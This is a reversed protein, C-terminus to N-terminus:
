GAGAGHSTEGPRPRPLPISSGLAFVLLGGALLFPAAHHRDYLAGAALPGLVRAASASAQFSGMVAGRNAPTAEFSVMGLMSPQSVARGVASVILPVLLIGVSGPWPIAFFALIMLSVGFLLLTKEGYRAVLRRIAGGQISAMVVAMLVLIGAFGRAEVGFNDKMYYAFITELQAVAFTFLFYTLCLNRVVRNALARLQVTGEAAKAHRTEPEKLVAVAYFFNVAAMGAAVLMPVGYGYPSLLGGIAPGLIFGVGFCAGVMGMWRTREDEETVDSIYATAVSINAAFLGTLIRGVFLQALSESLGLVVLAGSTGAITCLMVPRRGIRDALRGWLPAFLAQMAAHSTFLVGLVLGSAGYQKAYYPLVPLVIGFGILDIIIISFLVPLTSKSRLPPM